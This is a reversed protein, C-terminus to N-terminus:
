KVPQNITEAVRRWKASKHQSFHKQLLYIARATIGHEFITNLDCHTELLTGWLTNQAHSTVSM